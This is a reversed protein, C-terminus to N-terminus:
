WNRCQCPSTVTSAMGLLTTWSRVDDYGHLWESDSEWGEYCCSLSYVILKHLFSCYVPYSLHALVSILVVLGWLSLLLYITINLVWMKLNMSFTWHTCFIQFIVETHVYSLYTHEQMCTFMIHMNMLLNHYNIMLLISNYHFWSIHDCCM